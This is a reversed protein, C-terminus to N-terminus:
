IKGWNHELERGEEFGQTEREGDASDFFPMGRQWHRDVSTYSM